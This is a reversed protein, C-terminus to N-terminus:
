LNNASAMTHPWQRGTACCTAKRAESCLQRHLQRILREAKHSQEVVVFWSSKEHKEDSLIAYLPKVQTLEPIDGAINGYPRSTPQGTPRGALARWRVVLHSESVAVVTDIADATGSVPVAPGSPCVRLRGVLHSESM